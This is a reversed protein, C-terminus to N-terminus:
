DSVTKGDGPLEPPWIMPRVPLGFLINEVHVGYQEEEPGLTM